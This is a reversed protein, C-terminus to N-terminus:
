LTGQSAQRLLYINVLQSYAKRSLVAWGLLSEKVVHQVLLLRVQQTFEFFDSLRKLVEIEPRKFRPLLM